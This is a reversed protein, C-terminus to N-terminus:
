QSGYSFTICLYHKQGVVALDSLAMETLKEHRVVRNQFTVSPLFRSFRGGIRHRAASCVFPRGATPDGEM